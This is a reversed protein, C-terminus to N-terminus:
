AIPNREVFAAIQEVIVEPQDEQLFHGGNPVTFEPEHQATPILRRMHKAAPGTVPDQDSFLVLAPKDWQALRERAAKQAAATPHDPTIPVLLPFMHAGAKYSADPFPADYAAMVEPALDTTTATQIVFGIPMDTQKEAFNRWALFGESPKEEGTPLFTNMVVLRAFRDPMGAAIPLGLLGGWDQCVLTIDRLDLSEIFHVLADHHFAYSYDERHVPKDSKGFGLLDPAVVRGLARLGPIMKRYLYSWSPEGHLCLFPTGEGEDLYHMRLGHISDLYHPAFPYDPLNDFRDDPTRVFEM